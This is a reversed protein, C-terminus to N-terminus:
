DPPTKHLGACQRAAEQSLSYNRTFRRFFGVKVRRNPDAIARVDALGGIKALYGHFLCRRNAANRQEEDDSVVGQVPPALQTVVPASDLAPQRASIIASPALPLNEIQEPDEQEAAAYLGTRDNEIAQVKAFDEAPQM